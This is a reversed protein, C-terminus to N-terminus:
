SLSGIAADVEYKKLASLLAGTKLFGCCASTGLDFPNTNKSIAEENRYVVLEAGIEKCFNDRFEYMEPFKYGADVHLLKFPFKAPYFAKRILHLVASSDKGVSYLVTPNRFQAYVERIIYISEAELQDLYDM